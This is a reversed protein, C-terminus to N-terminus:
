KILNVIKSFKKKKPKDKPYVAKLNAGISSNSNAGPYDAM